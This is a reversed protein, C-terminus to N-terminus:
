TARTVRHTRYGRSRKLGLPYSAALHERKMNVRSPDGHDATERAPFARRPRCVTGVDGCPRHRGVRGASGLAIGLPQHTQLEERSISATDPQVVDHVAGELGRFRRTLPHPPGATLQQVMACPRPDLESTLPDLKPSYALVGDAAENQNGAPSPEAWEFCREHRRLRAPDTIAAGPNRPAEDFLSSTPVSATQGHEDALRVSAGVVAAVEWVPDEFTVM